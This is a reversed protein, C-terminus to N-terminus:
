LDISTLVITDVIQKLVKMSSFDRKNVLELNLRQITGDAFNVLSSGDERTKIVEGPWWQNAIYAM